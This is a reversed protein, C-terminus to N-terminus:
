HNESFILCNINEVICTKHHNTNKLVTLRGRDSPSLIYSVLSTTGSPVMTGNTYPGIGFYRPVLVELKNWSFQLIRIINESNLGDSLRASGAIM